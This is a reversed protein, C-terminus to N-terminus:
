GKKKGKEVTEKDRKKGPPCVDRPINKEIKKKKPHRKKQGLFEKKLKFSTWGDIKKMSVTSHRNRPGRRSNESEREKAVL